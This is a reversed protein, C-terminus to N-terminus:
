EIQPGKGTVLKGLYYRQDFVAPFTKLESDKKKFEELGYREIFCLNFVKTNQPLVDAMDACPHLKICPFEDCEFCFDAGHEVSCVYTECPDTGPGNPYTEKTLGINSMKGELPRCGQCPLKDRDVGLSVMYETLAPNDKAQYCPCRGCYLGCPAVLKIDNTTSM